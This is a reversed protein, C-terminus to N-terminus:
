GGQAFNLPIDISPTYGSSGSPPFSAGKLQDSLCKVVVDDLGNLNKPTVTTVKGAKDIKASLTVSGSLNPAKKLRDGYCAGLPKRLSGIVAGPSSPPESSAAGGGNMDVGKIVALKPGGGANSNTVTTDSATASASAAPATSAPAASAPPADLFTMGGSSPPAAADAAPTPTSPHPLVEQRACAGIAAAAIVVCAAVGVVGARAAKM